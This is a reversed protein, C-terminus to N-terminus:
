PGVPFHQGTIAALTHLVQDQFALDHVANHPPTPRRHYWYLGTANAGPEDSTALWVQTDHGLELDDSAHPGGM